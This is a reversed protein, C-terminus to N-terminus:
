IHVPRTLCVRQGRLSENKLAPLPSVWGARLRHSWKDLPFNLCNIAKSGWVVVKLKNTPFLYFSSSLEEQLLNGPPPWMEPFVQLLFLPPTAWSCVNRPLSTIFADFSSSIMRCPSHLSRVGPASPSFGRWPVSQLSFEVPLSSPHKWQATTLLCPGVFFEM